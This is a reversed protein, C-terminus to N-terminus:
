RRSISPSVYLTKAVKAQLLSQLLCPYFLAPIFPLALHLPTNVSPEALIIIGPWEAPQAFRETSKLTVLVYFLFYRRKAHKIASIGSQLCHVIRM